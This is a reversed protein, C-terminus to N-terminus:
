QSRTSPMIRRPQLEHSPPVVVAVRAVLIGALRPGAQVCWADYVFACGGYQPIPQSRSAAGHAVSVWQGSVTESNFAGWIDELAPWVKVDFYEQPSLGDVYPAKGDLRPAGTEDGHASLAAGM